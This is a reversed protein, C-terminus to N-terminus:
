TRPPRSVGLAEAVIARICGPVAAVDAGLELRWSPLTKCLAAMHQFAARSTPDVQKLTSPALAFLAAGGREPAFGTEGTGRVCPVVIAAIDVTEVLAEPRRRGVQATLKPAGGQGPGVADRGPLLGPFRAAHAEFLRMAGYLSHARPPDGPELLVYDDGAARAGAALCALVTTSKGSGGPGVVLVGPGDFAVAGAHVIQMGHAGAWAGLLRRLPHIREWDPMEAAGRYWALARGREVDVMTIQAGGNEVQIKFRREGHGTVQGLVGEQEPAWPRPPLSVGSEDRDWAMVTLDAATGDDPPAAARLHAFSDGLAAELATGAFALCVRRGAVRLWLERRGVRAAAVAFAQEGAAFFAAPAM